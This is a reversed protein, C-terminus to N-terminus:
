RKLPGQFDQDEFGSREPVDNLRQRYQPKDLAVEGFTADV